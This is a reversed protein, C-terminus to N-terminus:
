HSTRAARRQMLESRPWAGRRSLAGCTEAQELSVEEAFAAQAQLARTMAASIVSLGHILLVLFMLRQKWLLSFTWEALHELQTTQTWLEWIKTQLVVMLSLCPMAGQLALQVTTAAKWVSEMVTETAAAV